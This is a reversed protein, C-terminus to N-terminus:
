ALTCACQTPIACMGVDQVRQDAFPKLRRAWNGAPFRAVLKHCSALDGPVVNRVMTPSRGGNSGKSPGDQWAPPDAVGRNFWSHWRQPHLVCTHQTAYISLQNHDHFALIKCKFQFKCLLGDGWCTSRAVFDVSCVMVCQADTKISRHNRM